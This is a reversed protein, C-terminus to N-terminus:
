GRIECIPVSSSPRLRPIVTVLPLLQPRAAEKSHRDGPEKGAGRGPRM